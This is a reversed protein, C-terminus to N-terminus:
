FITSIPTFNRPFETDVYTLDTNSKTSCFNTYPGDTACLAANCNGMVSTIWDLVLSVRAYVGPANPAACSYGFSVIGVIKVEETKPDFWVMPGGSDGQCSDTGGEDKGACIMSETIPYYKGNPKPEAYAAKCDKPSVYPVKAVLLKASGHGGARIDGWGSIYFKTEPPFSADERTPLFVARMEPKDVRIAPSVKLIAYDFVTSADKKGYKPHENIEVIRHIMESPEPRRKDHSGVKIESKSPDSNRSCHAATLVYDKCIIIAGCSYFKGKKKVRYMVQWPLSHPIAEIGGVITSKTSNKEGANPVDPSFPAKGDITASIDVKVNAPNGNTVKYLAFITWLLGFMVLNQQGGRISFM